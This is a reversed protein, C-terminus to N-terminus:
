SQLNNFHTVDKLIKKIKVLMQQQLKFPNLQKFTHELTQKDNLSIHQSELLRQVPTKPKDYTKIIKSGVRTKAILQKSVRQQKKGIMEKKRERERERQKERERNNNIHPHINTHRHISLTSPPIPPTLNLNDQSERRPGNRSCGVDLVGDRKHERHRHRAHLSRHDLPLSDRHTDRTRVCRPLTGGEIIGDRLRRHLVRYSNNNNKSRNTTTTTRM